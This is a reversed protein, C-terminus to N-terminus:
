PVGLEDLPTGDDCRVKYPLADLYARVESKPVHHLLACDLTADRPFADCDVTRVPKGAEAVACNATGSSAVWRHAEVSLTGDDYVWGRAAFPRCYTVAVYRRADADRAGADARARSLLRDVCLEVRGRPDAVAEGGGACGVASPLALAAVVVLRVLTM